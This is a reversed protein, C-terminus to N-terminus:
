SNGAKAIAILGNDFNLNDHEIYIGYKGNVARVRFANGFTYNTNGTSYVDAPLYYLSIASLPDNFIYDAGDPDLFGFVYNSFNATSALQDNRLLEYKVTAESNRSYFRMMHNSSVKVLSMTNSGAGISTPTVSIRVDFSVYEYQGDVTPIWAKFANKVRWAYERGAVLQTREDYPINQINQNYTYRSSDNPNLDVEVLQSTLETAVDKLLGTAVAKVKKTFV